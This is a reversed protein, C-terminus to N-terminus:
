GCPDHIDDGEQGYHADKLGSRLDGGIAVGVERAHRPRQQEAAGDRDREPAGRAFPAFGREGERDCRDDEDDAELAQGHVLDRCPAVRQREPAMGHTDIRRVGEGMVVEASGEELGAPGVFGDICELVRDVPQREREPLASGVNEELQTGQELLLAIEVARLKSIAFGQRQVSVVGEGPVVEAHHEGEAPLEVLRKLRETVGERRDRFIGLGAVVGGPPSSGPGLAGPAPVTRRWAPSTLPPLLRGGRQINEASPTGRLSRLIRRGAAYRSPARARTSSSGPPWTRSTPARLERSPSRAM